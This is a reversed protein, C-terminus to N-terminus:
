ALTFVSYEVTFPYLNENGLKAPSSAKPKNLVQLLGGIKESKVFSNAISSMLARPASGGTGSSPWHLIMRFIGRNVEESGWTRDSPNNPIHVLELYKGNNPPDFNVDVFAIPLTPLTSAAVATVVKEQLATLIEAEIM